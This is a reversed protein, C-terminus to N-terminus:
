AIPQSTKRRRLGFGAGFLGLGLLVLTAPEPVQNTIQSQGNSAFLLTSTSGVYPSAYLASLYANAQALVPGAAIMRINGGALNPTSDYLAEWIAIQLAAAQIGSQAAHVAAAYTNFLWAGKDGADETYLPGALDTSSGITVFQDDQVQHLLDVCYAYFSPADGNPAGDTWSWNMEGASVVGNALGSVLVASSPGMGSFGITEASAVTSTAALGGSLLFGVLMRDIRM